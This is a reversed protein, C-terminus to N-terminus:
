VSKKQKIRSFFSKNDNTYIIRKFYLSPLGFNILYGLEYESIKLYESLQIEYKRFNQPTAKLEVVIKEDLVLDPEYYGIENGTDRSYITVKPKSLFRINELNLKEEFAKHYIRESHIAKYDRHIAMCIGVLRYSLDKYLFKKDERNYM